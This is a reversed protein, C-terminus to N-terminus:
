QRVEPPLLTTYIAAVYRTRKERDPCPLGINHSSIFALLATLSSKCYDVRSEAIHGFELTGDM